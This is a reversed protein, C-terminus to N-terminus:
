PSTIGEGQAFRRMKTVLSGTPTTPAMVGQFKGDEMIARFSPGASAAPQVITIFGAVWVGKEPRAQPTSQWAAPMGSPTTLMRVPEARSIPPSSVDFGNTLFIVKVPDVGTPFSRSSCAAFVTFFTEISSPPLAGKMTKSSASRSRATSPATAAFYRLAPWVQTQVLRKRTWSPMWSAKASRMAVAELRRFTPLPRSSPTCCPGSMSSFATLFTSSCIPSATAFPARTIAPPWRCASPPVKKSGVTSVPTVGAMATARSSVNPGSEGKNRKL